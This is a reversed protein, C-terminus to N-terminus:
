QKIACQLERTASIIKDAQTPQPVKVNHHQFTLTDTIREARNGDMIVKWCKHHNLAPGIYWGLQAHFGWPSRRNPKHHVLVKTGPPALPTSTFQFAGELAEFALLKPNTRCPRMIKLSWDCQPLLRGWFAIPFSSTLSPLGSKLHSKYTQVGKEAANSCHM